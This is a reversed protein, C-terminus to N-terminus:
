GGCVYIFTTIGMNFMISDSLPILIIALGCYYMVIDVYYLNSRVTKEYFGQYNHRYGGIDM